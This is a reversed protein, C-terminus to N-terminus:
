RPMTKALSCAQVDGGECAQALLERARARDKPAPKAAHLVALRKCAAYFKDTCLAGLGATGQAEDKTVGEGRAQSWAYEVCAQKDGVACGRQDYTAARALDKPVGRGETYLRLEARPHCSVAQEAHYGEGVGLRQAVLLRVLVEDARERSRAAEAEAEHEVFARLGVEAEVDAEAPVAQLPHVEAYLLGESYRSLRRCILLTSLLGGRGGM